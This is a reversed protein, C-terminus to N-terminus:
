GTLYFLPWLFIWVSDVLHWYLAGMELEANYRATTKRRHVRSTLWAVAVLGGIMHLAHLGTM